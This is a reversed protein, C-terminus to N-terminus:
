NTQTNTLHPGIYGIYVRGTNTYDDFYYLRPSVMGIQALKFHATMTVCGSPDVDLPVPFIRERGYRQMTMASETTAHKGPTLGRYGSPTHRLYHDVGQQCQDDNRARVYDTLALCVDWATRVALQLTDSADVSCAVGRDGTFVLAGGGEALRDLLHEMSDPYDTGLGDPVLGYAADHDGQEALRSRLWRVEARADQLDEYIEARELLDDELASEAFRLEDELREARAQLAEIQQAARQVAVLDTKPSLALDAIRHLSDADVSRIGLVAKVLEIQELYREVSETTSDVAPAPEFTDVSPEVERGVLLQEAESGIANVIAQNELRDFARRVSVVEHPLLRTTAHARAIGGLMTRVRGDPDRALRGTGLIRHRRADIASAPDVGPLFTRIAWPPVSHDAGFEVRLRATAAPDLVVVQALGYVQRTWREIQALFPDFAIGDTSTTGAAFVLGHREEDCLVDILDDVRSETIIRPGDMFEISGDALPLTQMLYRGLRPVDVFNGSDNTVSLTLWDGQGRRDHAILETTWTGRPTDSEILRAKLSNSDGSQRRIISFHRSDDEYRAGASLDVDIRKERLWSTLQAEADSLWGDGAACTMFARYDLHVTPQQVEATTATM